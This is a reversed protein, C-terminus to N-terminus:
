SNIRQRLKLIDPSLTVVRVDDDGTFAAKDSMGTIDALEVRGRVTGPPNLYDLWGFLGYNLRSWYLFSLLAL